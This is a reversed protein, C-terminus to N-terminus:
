ALTIKQNVVVSSFDFREVIPTLASGGILTVRYRVPNTNISIWFSAMDDLDTTLVQNTIQVFVGVGSVGNGSSFVDTDNTVPLGGAAAANSNFGYASITKPTGVSAIQLHGAASLRMQIYPDEFFDFGFGGSLKAAAIDYKAGPVGNNIIPYNGPAIPVPVITTEDVKLHLALNHCFFNGAPLTTIVFAEIQDGPLLEPRCYASAGGAGYTIPAGATVRSGSGIGIVTRVGGRLRVIYADFADSDNIVDMSFSTELRIEATCANNIVVANTGTTFYAGKKEKEHAVTFLLQGSTGLTWTQGVDFRQSTNNNVSFVGTNALNTNNARTISLASKALAGFKAVPRDVLVRLKLGSIAIAVPHSFSTGETVTLLGANNYHYYHGVLFAGGGVARDSATATIADVEAALFGIEGGSVYDFLNPNTVATVMGIAMKGPDSVDATAALGATTIYFPQGKILGHGTSSISSVAGGSGGPDGLWNATDAAFTALTLGIAGTRQYQKLSDIAWMGPIVAVNPVFASSPGEQSVYVWFALETVKGAETAIAGVTRAVTARVFVSVGMLNIRRLDNAKVTEGALMPPINARVADIAGLLKRIASKVTETAGIATADPTLSGLDNDSATIGIAAAQAKLGLDAITDQDALKVKNVLAITNGGAIGLVYYLAWKGDGDDAVYVVDRVGLIVTTDTLNPVLEVEKNTLATEIVTELTQLAAKVTQNDPITTGNFAGLNLNNRALGIATIADNIATDTKAIASKVTETASLPGSTSAIAGLNSTTSGILLGLQKGMEASLAPTIGGSTLDNIILTATAPDVGMQVWAQGDWMFVRPINPVTYAPFTVGYMSFPVAGVGSQVIVSRTQAQNASPNPLTLNQGTTTQNVVFWSYQDIATSDCINGGTPLNPRNLAVNNPSNQNTQGFVFAM